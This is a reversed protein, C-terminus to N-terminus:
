KSLERSWVVSGIKQMKKNM